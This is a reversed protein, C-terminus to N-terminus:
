KKPSMPLHGVVLAALNAIDRPHEPTKKPTRPEGSVNEKSM